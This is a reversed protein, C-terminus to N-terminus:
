DGARQAPGPKLFPHQSPRVTIDRQMHGLLGICESLPKNWWASNRIMDCIEPDFRYRIIRAPVGAVIAFDPVDKTVVAGAGVVAGIGIVRCGPTIIVREGIWADHGFKCTGFPIPDAGVIGLSPNYFFPHTSLWNIPHNRVFVKIGQAMSVYRGVEVGSPFSGPVMCEGYSFAGVKVGYRSLLIDRATVSFLPGGELRLALEFAIRRLRSVAAMSVLIPSLGSRILETTPNTSM